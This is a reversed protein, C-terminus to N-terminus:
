GEKLGRLKGKRIERKKKHERGRGKEREGREELGEKRKGKRAEKKVDGGGGKLYSHLHYIHMYM